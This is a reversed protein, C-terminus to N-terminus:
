RLSNPRQRPEKLWLHQIINRLRSEGFITRGNEFKCYSTYPINTLAAFTKATIGLKQRWHRVLEHIGNDYVKGSGCCKDCDTQNLKITEDDMM